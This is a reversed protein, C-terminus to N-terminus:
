PVFPLSFGNYHRLGKFPMVVKKSCTAENPEALEYTSFLQVLSQLQQRSASYKIPNRLILIYLRSSVDGSVYVITDPMYKTYLDEAAPPGQLACVICYM